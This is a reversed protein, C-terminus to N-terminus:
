SILRRASCYREGVRPDMVERLPHVVEVVREFSRAGRTELDHQAAPRGDTRLPEPFRRTAPWDAARHQTIGFPIVHLEVLAESAWTRDFSEGFPATRTSSMPHPDPEARAASRAP